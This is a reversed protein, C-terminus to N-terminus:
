CGPVATLWAPQICGSQAKADNIRNKIEFGPATLDRGRL